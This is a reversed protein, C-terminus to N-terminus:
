ILVLVRLVIFLILSFIACLRTRLSYGGSTALSNVVVPPPRTPTVVDESTMISLCQEVHVNKQVFEPNICVYYRSLPLLKSIVHSDVYAPLYEPQSDYTCANSDVCKVTMSWYKQHGNTYPWSVTVSRSQVNSLTLNMSVHVASIFNFSEFRTLTNCQLSFRKLSNLPGVFDKANIVTFENESIDLDQLNILDKMATNVVQDIQNQALNLVHLYRMDRVMGYQLKTLKNKSLNLVFIFENFSDFTGTEIRLIENSSFDLYAIRQVGRFSSRWLQTLKNGNLSLKDLSLGFFASDNIFEINNRSINLTQLHVMNRFVNSSVATLRNSSLDLERLNNRVPDLDLTRLVTLRNERLSLHKLSVLGGLTFHQLVRIRNRALSLVELNKLHKFTGDHIYEILNDSLDLVRLSTTKSFLLSPIEFLHNDNLYLETLNILNEFSTNHIDEIKNKELRLVELEKLSSFVGSNIVVLKNEELFLKRLHTLPVLVKPSISGIANKAFNINTLQPHIDFIKDPLYSIRNLSLDLYTTTTPTNLLVESLQSATLSANDCYTYLKQNCRCPPPCSATKAVICYLIAAFIVDFYRVKM